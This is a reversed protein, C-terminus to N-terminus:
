INVPKGKIDSWAELAGLEEIDEFSSFLCLKPLQPFEQAWLEIMNEKRARSSTLILIRFNKFGFKEKALGRIHTDSYSLYKKLISSRNFHASRLPMTGRDIELFYNLANSNGQEFVSFIGDPKLGVSLTEFETFIRTSWSVGEVYNAGLLEDQHLLKAERGVLAIELAIMFRATEIAHSFPDQGRYRKNKQSWRVSKPFEIQYHETLYEAGKRALAYVIFHRQYSFMEKSPRDIYGVNFLRLLRRNCATLSLGQIMKMVIPRTLYRYRYLGILIEKDINDLKM